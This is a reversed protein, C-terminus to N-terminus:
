RAMAAPVSVARRAQEEAHAMAKEATYGRYLGTRSARAKEAYKEMTAASQRFSQAVLEPKAGMARMMRAVTEVPQLRNM